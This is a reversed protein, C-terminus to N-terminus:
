LRPRYRPLRMVISKQASIKDSTHQELRLLRELDAVLSDQERTGVLREAAALSKSIENAYLYSKALRFNLKDKRDEAADRSLSLAKAALGAAEEFHGIRFKLASLNSIPGPDDPALSSAENYAM